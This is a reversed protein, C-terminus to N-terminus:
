HVLSGKMAVGSGNGNLPAGVCNNDNRSDAEHQDLATGFKNQTKRRRKRSYSAGVGRASAAVRSSLEM